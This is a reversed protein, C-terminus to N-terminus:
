RGFDFLADIVLVVFLPWFFVPWVMPGGDPQWLAIIVAVIAIIILLFIM